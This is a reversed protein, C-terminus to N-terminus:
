IEKLGIQAYPKYNLGLDKKMIVNNKNQKFTRTKTPTKQLENALEEKNLNIIRQTMNLGLLYWRFPKHYFLHKQVFPRLERVLSNLLQLYRKM